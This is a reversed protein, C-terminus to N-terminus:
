FDYSLRNSLKPYRSILALIQQNNKGDSVNSQCLTINGKKFLLPMLYIDYDTKVLYVDNLIAMSNLWIDDALPCYKSILERNFADKHLSRPPYLVGSGGYQMINQTPETASFLLNKWDLYNKGIKKLGSNTIICKPYKKHFDFLKELMKEEYIFDDDITVIIDNSYKQMVYYYKKHSALDDDSWVIELGRSKLALLRKPLINESEFQLKSLTLVIKKPPTSQRLISEIVIWTKIIRLPFTTLSVIIDIHKKQKKRSLVYWAPVIFNMSERLFFRCLKNFFTNGSQICSLTLMTHLKFLKYIITEGGFNKLNKNTM